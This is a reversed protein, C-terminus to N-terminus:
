DNKATPMAISIWYDKASESVTKSNIHHFLLSVIDM